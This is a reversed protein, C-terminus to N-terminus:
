VWALAAESKFLKPAYPAQSLLLWFAVGQWLVGEDPNFTSTHHDTQKGKRAGLIWYSGVRNQIYYSFDEGSFMFPIKQTEFYQDLLHLIFFSNISRNSSLHHSLYDLIESLYEETTEIDDNLYRQLIILSGYQRVFSSISLSSNNFLIKKFLIDIKNKTSNPFYRYFAAHFLVIRECYFLNSDLSNRDFHNSLEEVKTNLYFTITPNQM